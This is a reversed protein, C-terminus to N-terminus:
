ICICTYRKQFIYDLMKVLECLENMHIARPADETRVEMEIQKYYTNEVESLVGTDKSFAYDAYLNRLIKSAASNTNCPTKDGHKKGKKQNQKKHKIQNLYNNKDSQWLRNFFDYFTGIGPTDDVPFGSLIAYM